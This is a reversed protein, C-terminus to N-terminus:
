TYRFGQVLAAHTGDPKAVVVDVLGAAHGAPVRAAMATGDSSVQVDSAKVGGLSLTAESTFGQGRVMVVEGHGGQPPQIELVTFGKEAREPVQLILRGVEFLFNFFRLEQTGLIFAGAYVVPQSPTNNAGIANLLVLTMFGVIGGSIPRGIHWLNFGEKWPQALGPGHDYVGKLSIVIGGMVGFWTAQVVMRQADPVMAHWDPRILYVGAVAVLLLALVVDYVFIWFRATSDHKTM